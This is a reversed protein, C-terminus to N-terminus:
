GEGPIKRKVKKNLIEKPHKKYYEIVNEIPFCIDEKGFKKFIETLFIYDEQTDLTLELSPYYYKKPADWHDTKYLNPRQRINWGVHSRYKPNTIQYEVDKLTSYKYVQIDLGDCWVKGERNSIYDLNEKILRDILYDIHRPDVLPCDGTIDVILNPKLQNCNIGDVVDLVRRLVNDMDAYGYKIDCFKYWHRKNWINVIKSSSTSTPIAICTKDILKSKNIRKLLLELVPVDLIPLLVKGPLRTSEMRAQVICVTRIYKYNVRSM